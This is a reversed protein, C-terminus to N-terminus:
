AGSSTFEPIGQTDCEAGNHVFGIKDNSTDNAITFCFTTWSSRADDRHRHGTCHETCITGFLAQCPYLYISGASDPATNGM